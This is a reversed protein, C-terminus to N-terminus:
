ELKFFTVQFFSFLSRFFHLHVYMNRIESRAEDLLSHGYRPLHGQPPRSSMEGEVHRTGASLIDHM